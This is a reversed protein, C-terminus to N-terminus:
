PQVRLNEPPSPRQTGADVRLTVQGTLGSAPDSVTITAGPVPTRLVLGNFTHTGNDAPAFTYSGPLMMSPNPDSSSFQVTGRYLADTTGNQGIATVSISFATGAVVSAPATVRFSRAVEFILVQGNMPTAHRTCQYTSTRTSSNWTASSMMASSTVPINAGANRDTTDYPTINHFNGQWNFQVTDGEHIRTTAPNGASSTSGSARDYFALAVATGNYGVDVTVTAQAFAASALVLNSVALLALRLSRM